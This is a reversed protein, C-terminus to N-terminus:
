IGAQKKEVREDLAHNMAEFGQRTQDRVKRLIPGVLLGRFEERQTFRTRNGEISEVGFQHEGDFIGPIVLHGLWHLKRGPEFQVVKPKFTMAKGGPPALRVELKEGVAVTGQLSRVFPNWEPWSDFDSFM